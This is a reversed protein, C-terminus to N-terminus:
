HIRVKKILWNVDPYNKAMERVASVNKSSDDMFRIDDWGKQFFNLKEQLEDALEGRKEATANVEMAVDLGKQMNAIHDRSADIEAQTFYAKDLASSVNCWFLGIVLIFIAKRM